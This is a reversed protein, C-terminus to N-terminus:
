ASRPQRRATPPTWWALAVVVLDVGLAVLVWLPTDPPDFFAWAFVAATALGAVIGLAVKAQGLAGRRRSPTAARTVVYFQVAFLVGGGFVVLWKLWSAGGGAAEAMSKVRDLNVSAAKALRPADSSEKLDTLVDIAASDNGNEADILALGMKAYDNARTENSATFDAEAGDLDGKELRTMGRQYYAAALDADITKAMDEDDESKALRELSSIGQDYEGNACQACALALDTQTSPAAAASKEFYAQADAYQGDEAAILGLNYLAAAKVSDGNKTPPTDQAKRTPAEAKDADGKFLYGAGINLDAGRYRQNLRLVKQLLPLAKGYDGTKMYCVALNNLADTDSPNLKVAEKFLQTARAIDGAALAKCGENYPHQAAGAAPGATVALGALCLLLVVVGSRAFARRCGSLTGHTPLSTEARMM